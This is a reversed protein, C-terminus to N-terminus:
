EAKFVVLARENDSTSLILRAPCGEPCASGYTYKIDIKEAVMKATIGKLAGPKNELVVVIVENEKITKYGNKELAERGRLTDDVVLMIKAENNAAYGAVGEINIGHDALIKSINALIGIKNPATVVLEKGLNVSKIM